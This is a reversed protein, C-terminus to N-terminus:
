RIEEHRQVFQNCSYDKFVLERRFSCGIACSQKLPTGTQEAYGKQGGTYYAFHCNQCMPPTIDRKM